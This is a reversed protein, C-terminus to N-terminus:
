PNLDIHREGQYDRPLKRLWGYQLCVQPIPTAAYELRELRALLGASLMSLDAPKSGNDQMM